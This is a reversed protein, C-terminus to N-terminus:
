LSGRGRRMRQGHLWDRVRRAWSLRAIPGEPTGALVESRRARSARLIDVPMRLASEGRIASWFEQQAVEVGSRGRSACELAKTRAADGLCFRFVKALTDAQLEEIRLCVPWGMTKAQQWVKGGGPEPDIALAPIGRKLSLVLGHLRTTVVADMAAIVSEVERESRLGTGNTDLRTDIQVRAVEQSNLLDTLAENARGTAAGPYDEVLCVGIVPVTRGPASVVVDPRGGDPTDRELLV